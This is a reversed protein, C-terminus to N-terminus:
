SALWVGAALASSVFPADQVPASDRVPHDFSGGFLRWVLQVQDDEYLTRILNLVEDVKQNGCKEAAIAVIRMAEARESDDTSLLRPHIVAMEISGRVGLPRLLQIDKDIYNCLLAQDILDIIVVWELDTKLFFRMPDSYALSQVSDVGEEELREIVEDTMGQLNQFGAPATDRSPISIALRKRTYDTVFDFMSQVPLLGFSFAILPKAGDAAATSALPGVICAAGMRIWAFHFVAPTLDASRYRKVIEYLSWLYAGAFGLSLTTPTKAALSGLGATCGIDLGFHALTCATALWIIVANLGLGYCYSRWNYYLDFLKQVCLEPTAGSESDQGERGFVSTYSNVVGPRRMVQLVTVRKASLTRRYALFALGFPIVPLIAVVWHVIIESWHHQM